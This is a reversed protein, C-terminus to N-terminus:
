VSMEPSVSFVAIERCKLRRERALILAFAVSPIVIAPLSRYDFVWPSNGQYFSITCYLTMISASLVLSLKGPWSGPKFSGLAVAWILYWPWIQTMITFYMALMVTPAWTLFREFNTTRWAAFLGFGAFMLYTVVRILMNAKVATPWDMPGDELEGALPDIESEPPFPIVRTQEQIVYGSQRSPPDYVRVWQEQPPGMILLRAGGNIHSRVPADDDPTARLEMANNAKVWWGCFYIPVNISDVEEGLLRRLGKFILEHFNNSYFDPATVYEQTPANSKMHVLPVILITVLGAALVARITLRMRNGWGSSERLTMLLYLPVLPGTVFKVLASLTLAVVAGVRYGQLHLWIGLLVLVIMVADNHGSLGTETIVLPNWLFFVTGQAAREPALRRLSSWLLGAGLLVSVAAVERFLFVALGIHNGVVWALGASILTWLPGYISPTNHGFLALFPDSSVLTSDVSYADAGYMSVLRGYFGYAYVDTSLLVPSLVLTALFIVGGGFVLAHVTASQAGKMLRVMFAYIAFLAAYFGFFSAEAVFSATGNRLFLLSQNSVSKVWPFVEWSYSPVASAM